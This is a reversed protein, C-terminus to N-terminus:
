WKAVEMIRAPEGIIFYVRGSKDPDHIIMSLGLELYLEEKPQNLLIRAVAAAAQGAFVIVAESVASALTNRPLKLQQEIAEKSLHCHVLCPDCPMALLCDYGAPVRWWLVEGHALVYM